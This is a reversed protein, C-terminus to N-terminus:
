RELRGEDHLRRQTMWRYLVVLSSALVLLLGGVAVLLLGPRYSQISPFTVAVLPVAVGVVTLWALHAFMVRLQMPEHYYVERALRLTRVALRHAENIFDEWFSLLQWSDDSQPRFRNLAFEVGGWDTLRVGDLNYVSGAPTGTLDEVLYMFRKRSDLEGSMDELAGEVEGIQEVSILKDGGYYEGHAYWDRGVCRLNGLFRELSKGVPWVEARLAASKADFEPASKNQIGMVLQDFTRQIPQLEKQCARLEEVRRRRLEKTQSTANMLGAALLASALSAATLVNRLAGNLDTASALVRQGVFFFTVSAAPVLLWYAARRAWMKLGDAIHLNEFDRLTGFQPRPGRLARLIQWLRWGLFWRVVKQAMPLEPPDPLEDLPTATAVLEDDDNRLDLEPM